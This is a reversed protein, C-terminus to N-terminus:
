FLLALSPSISEYSIKIKSSRRCDGGIKRRVYVCARACVGECVCV